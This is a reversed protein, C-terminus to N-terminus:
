SSSPRPFFMPFFSVLGNEWTIAALAGHQCSPLFSVDCPSAPRHAQLVGRANSGSPARHRMPTPTPPGEDEGEEDLQMADDTDTSETAVQVGTTMPGYVVGAFDFRPLPRVTVNYLVLKEPSTWSAAKSGVAASAPNALRVLIRSGTPDLHMAQVIGPCKLAPIPRTDLSPFTDNFQVMQIRVDGALAFALVSNGGAGGMTPFFSLSHPVSKTVLTSSTWTATEYLRLANGLCAQALYLGNPSWALASSAGGKGYTLLTPASPSNSTASAVNWVLLGSTSSSGSMLHAGCPSFALCSTNIARPHVLHSMWPVPRKRADLLPSRGEYVGQQPQQFYFEWLCVGSACGVAFTAASAPRWQICTIDTMQPHVLAYPFWSEQSLDYIHISHSPGHVLALLPLTPHWDFCSIANGLALMRKQQCERSMMVDGNAQSKTPLYSVIKQVLQHNLSDLLTSPNMISSWVSTSKVAATQYQSSPISASAPLLIREREAEVKVQMPIILIPYEVGDRALLTALAAPADQSVTDRTNQTNWLDYRVHSYYHISVIRNVKYLYEVVYRRGIVQHDQFLSPSPSQPLTDM